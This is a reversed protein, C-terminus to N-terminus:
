PAPEAEATDLAEGANVKGFGFADSHGNADYGNAPGIKDASDALVSKVTDLPLDPRISLVLAGIGAALRASRNCTHRDLGNKM